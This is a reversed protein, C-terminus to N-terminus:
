AMAPTPCHEGTGADLEFRAFRRPREIYATRTHLLGDIRAGGLVLSLVDQGLENTGMWHAMSPPKFRMATDISGKIHDPYPAISDGIGALVLLVVVLVLGVMSLSSQRMRYFARLWAERRARSAGQAVSAPDVPAVASM